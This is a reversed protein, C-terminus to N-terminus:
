QIPVHDVNLHRARRVFAPSRERRFRAPLIRGIRAGYGSRSRESGEERGHQTCGAPDAVVRLGSEDETSEIATWESMEDRGRFNVCKDDLSDIIQNALKFHVHTFIRISPRTVTKLELKHALNKNFIGAHVEKFFFYIYLYIYIYM